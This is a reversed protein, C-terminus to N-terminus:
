SDKQNQGNGKEPYGRKERYMEATIGHKRNYCIGGIKSFAYASSGKGSGRTGPHYYREFAIETAAEVEDLGFRKILNSTNTRGTPTLTDGSMAEIISEIIDVELENIKLLGKKWEAMMEIQERRENLADLQAKQKKVVTDDSLQKKGKGRNCDKCSTILNILENTGGEAVPVIHDVELIVDPASRGCYQCTFSDRKFVEFRTSKSISTRKAM